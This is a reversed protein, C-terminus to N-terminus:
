SGCHPESCRSTAGCCTRGTEELSCSKGANRNTAGPSKLIFGSGGSVIRRVNGGCAPCKELAEDKISQQQEFRLNCQGCEYEYTPM